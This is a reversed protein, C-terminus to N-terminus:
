DTGKSFAGYRTHSGPQAPIYAKMNALWEWIESWTEFVTNQDAFAVGKAGRRSAFDDIAQQYYADWQAQTIVM